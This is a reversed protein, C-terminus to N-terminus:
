RKKTVPCSSTNNHNFKNKLGMKIQNEKRTLTNYSIKSSLEYNSHIPDVVYSSLLCELCLYRNQFKIVFKTRFEELFSLYLIVIDHLFPRRKNYGRHYEDGEKRNEWSKDRNFYYYICQIFLARLDVLGFNGRAGM